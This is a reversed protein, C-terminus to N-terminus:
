GAIQGPTGPPLPAGGELNVDLAAAGAEALTTVSQSSIATLVNYVVYLVTTGNAVKDPNCFPRAIVM